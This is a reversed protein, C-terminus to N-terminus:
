RSGRKNDPNMPLLQRGKVRPLGVVKDADPIGSRVGDWIILGLGLAVASGGGGYGLNQYGEWMKFKPTGAYQENAMGRSYVGGGVGGLGLIMLPWGVVSRWSSRSSVPELVYNIHLRKDEPVSVIEEVPGYGARQISVQHRGPTVEVQGSFPTLAVVRGNVAIKAGRVNCWFSLAAVRRISKLSFVARVKGTEPVVLDAELPVHKALQLKLKYTGPKMHTSLPTSGLVRGSPLVAVTAGSPNTGIIVEPMSEFARQKLTRILNEVDAVNAPEKGGNQKRYHSRYRKLLEVAKAYKALKEMCRAMNYLYRPNADLAFARAFADHAEQFRAGRYHGRGINGEATAREKPTTAAATPSAVTPSPVTPSAPSPTGPQASPGPQAAAAPAAPPQGLASTALLAGVCTVLLTRRLPTRRRFLTTRPM